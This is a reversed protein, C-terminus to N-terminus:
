HNYKEKLSKVLSSIKLNKILQFISINWMKLYLYVISTDIQSSLTENRRKKRRFSSYFGWLGTSWLLLATSFPWILKGRLSYLVNWRLPGHLIALWCHQAGPTFSPTDFHLSIYVTWTRDSPGCHQFSTHSPHKHSVSSNKRRGRGEQQGVPVGSLPTPGVSLRLPSVALVTPCHCDALPLQSDAQLRKVGLM